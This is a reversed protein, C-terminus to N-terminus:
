ASVELDTLVARACRRGSVLAGQISSTDRHDGAVYVTDGGDRLRVPRGESPRGESPRGSSRAPSMLPTTGLRM